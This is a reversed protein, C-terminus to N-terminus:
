HPTQKKRGRGRGSSTSERTHANEREFLYFIKLFISIYCLTIYAKSLKSLIPFSQIILIMDSSQPRPSLCVHPKHKDSTQCFSLPFHFHVDHINKGRTIWLLQLTERESLLADMYSFLMGMKGKRDPLTFLFTFSLMIIQTSM